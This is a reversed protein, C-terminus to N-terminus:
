GCCMWMGWRPVATVSSVLAPLREALEPAYRSPRSSPRGPLTPEIRARRRAAESGGVDRHLPDGTM